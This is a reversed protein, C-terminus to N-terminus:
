VQLVETLTAEIHAAVADGIERCRQADLDRGLRAIPDRDRLAALEAAPRFDDGKSHPGFRCTRLYLMAPSVTSRVQDIAVRASGAVSTVDMGDAEYVPIQFTTARTELDGAHQEKTATSQAVGNDEVVFVVPLRWRAAINLTEYVVGQGFTGDGMFVAVVAAEKDLKRAMAMGAAVPVMAGQLGSSYFSRTHLHQSGGVGQCVGTSLGLIEAFLGRLDNSYALFHGHGRHNSCIADTAQNLQSIAGVACAEQGLCTHITGSIKGEDFLRLLREEAGRILVMLRYLEYLGEVTM